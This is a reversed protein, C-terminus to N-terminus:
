VVFGLVVNIGDKVLSDWAAIKAQYEPDEADQKLAAIM